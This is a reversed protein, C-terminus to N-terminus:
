TDHPRVEKRLRCLAIAKGGTTEGAIHPSLAKAFFKGTEMYQKQDKVSMTAIERVYRAIRLESAALVVKTCV